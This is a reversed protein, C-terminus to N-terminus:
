MEGDQVEQEEIIAGDVSWPFVPKWKDYLWKPLSVFEFEGPRVGLMEGNECKGCVAGQKNATAEYIKGFRLITGPTSLFPLDSRVDQVMKIKM